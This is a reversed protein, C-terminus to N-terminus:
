GDGLLERAGQSLMRAGLKEGLSAAAKSDGGAVSDAIEDSMHRAGDTSFLIVRLSLSGGRLTGKVGVPTTCSAHISALFAREAVTESVTRADSLSGVAEEVEHSGCIRSGTLTEVALAAQAAAPIFQREDLEEYKIDATRGLRKLGAMAVIIADLEGNEIRSLRTDVNGRLAVVELAPNIRLAEFRRRPSSTGLRAGKALSAIGGGSRTVLADCPNERRLTAAIRYEPALLAPLDKMSHVAIDVRRDTLAQELEKIFLGKGGVEALSPTTIKDGSTRIPVIEINLAPAASGLAARVLEAQVIALKSPRTGIRLTSPM